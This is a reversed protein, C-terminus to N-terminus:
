ECASHMSCVVLTHSCWIATLFCQSDTVDVIILTLRLSETQSVLRHSQSSMKTYQSAYTRCSSHQTRSAAIDATIYISLPMWKSAQQSIYPCHCENQRRGLIYWDVHEHGCNTQVSCQPVNHITHHVSVTRLGLVLLLQNGYQPLDPVHDPPNWVWQPGHRLFNPYAKWGVSVCSISVKRPAENLIM